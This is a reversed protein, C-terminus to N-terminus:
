GPAKTPRATGGDAPVGQIPLPVWRMGDGNQVLMVVSPRKQHRAQDIRTQVDAPQSVESQQVEVIVDGPKIGRDSAPGSPATDTVM